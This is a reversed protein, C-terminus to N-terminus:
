REQQTHTASHRIQGRKPVQLILELLLQGIELLLLKVRAEHRIGNGHVMGAAWAPHFATRRM